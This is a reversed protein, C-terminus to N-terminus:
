STVFNHHLVLTKISGKQQVNKLKYALIKLQATCLVCLTAFIIDVGFLISFYWLGLGLQSAYLAYYSWQAPEFPNYCVLPLEQNNTTLPKSLVGVYTALFFYLYGKIMRENTNLLKVIEYETQSDVTSECPWFQSLQKFLFEMEKRRFMLVYVRALIENYVMVGEIVSAAIQLDSGEMYFKIVM